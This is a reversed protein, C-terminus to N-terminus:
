VLVLLGKVAVVSPAVSCSRRKVAEIMTTLMIALEVALINVLASHRQRQLPALVSVDLGGPPPAVLAQGSDADILVVELTPCTVVLAGLNSALDASVSSM